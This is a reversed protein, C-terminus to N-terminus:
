PLSVISRDTLWAMLLSVVRPGFPGLVGLRAIAAAMPSVRAVIQFVCAPAAVAAPRLRGRRSVWAAALPVAPAAAVPVAPVEERRPEAVARVAAEEERRPEAVARVAAEEERQPEAAARVAAEEERQPEAAARAAAM